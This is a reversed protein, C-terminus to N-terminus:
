QIPISWSMDTITLHRRHDLVLFGEPSVVLADQLALLASAPRPPVGGLLDMLTAFQQPVVSVRALMVPRNEEIELVGIGGVQAHTVGELTLVVHGRAVNKLTGNVVIQPAPDHGVLIVEVSQVSIHLM